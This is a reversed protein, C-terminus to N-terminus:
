ILYWCFFFSSSLFSSLKKFFVCILYMTCRLRPSTLVTVYLSAFTMDDRCITHVFCALKILWSSYFFFVTWCCNSKGVWLHVQFVSRAGFVSEHIKSNESSLTVMMWFTLLFFDYHLDLLFSFKGSFSRTKRCAVFHDQLWYSSLFFQLCSHNWVGLLHSHIHKLYIM